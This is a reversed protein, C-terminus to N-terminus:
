WDLKLNKSGSNNRYLVVALVFTSCFDNVPRGIVPEFAPVIVSTNALLQADM